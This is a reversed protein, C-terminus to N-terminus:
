FKRDMTYQNCGLLVTGRTVGHRIFNNPKFPKREKIADSVGHMDMSRAVPIRRDPLTLNNAAHEDFKESSYTPVGGFYNSVKHYPGSANGFNNPVWAKFGEKLVGDALAEVREKKTM